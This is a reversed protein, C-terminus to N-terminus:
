KRQKLRLNKFVWFGLTSLIFWLTPVLANIRPKPLEATYFFIVVVAYTFVTIIIKRAWSTERAKDAEVRKNRAKLEDIQKQIDQM